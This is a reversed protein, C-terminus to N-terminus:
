SVAGPVLLRGQEQLPRQGDALLLQPWMMGVRRGAQVAQRLEVPCLALVRLRLREVLPRQGDKLLLQSGAMWRGLDFPQGCRKYSASGRAPTRLARQPTM